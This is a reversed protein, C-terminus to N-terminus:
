FETKIGWQTQYAYALAIIALPYTVLMGIYLAIAGAGAVLGIVLVLVITAGINEQFKKLSEKIADMFPMGRDLMLAPAFACCFGFFLSGLGFTIGSAIGVILFYVFFPGFWQFGKFLDGFEIKGTKLKKLAMYLIGAGMPAACIGFTVGSVIMAILFAGIWTGIDQLVLRWGMSLAEGLEPLKGTYGVGTGPVQAQGQPNMNEM